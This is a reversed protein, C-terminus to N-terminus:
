RRRTTLRWALTRSSIPPASVFADLLPALPGTRGQGQVRLRPWAVADGALSAALRRAMAYNDLWILPRDCFAQLLTRKVAWEARVALKAGPRQYQASEAPDFGLVVLRQGELSVRRVHFRSGRIDVTERCPEIGKIPWAGAAFWLDEIV